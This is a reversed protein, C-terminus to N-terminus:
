KEAVITEVRHAEWVEPWQLRAYQEEIVRSRVPHARTKNRAAVWEPPCAFAVIRTAAHYDRALDLVIARLEARLSTADWVIKRRARLHERLLEKARQVVEGNRSQDDRKGLLEARIEDLSIRHWEPGLSEVWSSKGSGSPACTVIVEPHDERYPYTRAIAEEPTHIEGAEFQRIAEHYVYDQPLQARWATYPDPQDWIGADEAGLRFLELIELGERDEGGAVERGRLDAQELLYVLQASVARSMRWYASVPANRVVLKKPDHHRGVLALVTECLSWPLGLLPM